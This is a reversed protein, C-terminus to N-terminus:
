SSFIDKLELVVTDEEWSISDCTIKTETVSYYGEQYTYSIQKTGEEM